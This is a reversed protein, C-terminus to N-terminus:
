LTARNYISILHKKWSADVLHESGELRWGGILSEDVVVKIDDQNPTHMQVLAEKAEELAKREDKERAVSLILGSREKDRAALRAFAKAIRPMLAERGRAVLSEHLAEVARKPTAGREIMQWLAQAYTAEM